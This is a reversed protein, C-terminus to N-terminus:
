VDREYNFADIYPDLAPLVPELYSRYKRWRGVARDSLAETVAQRSPTGVYRGRARERYALVADNWDEGLVDLVLRLVSKPEAILDEYRYELYRLGEAGRQGLWLDMVTAYLAAAGELAFFHAMADNPRLKQMFCSLVVDRPDRLAVVLPAGPFLRAM